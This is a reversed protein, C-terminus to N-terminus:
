IFEEQETFDQPYFYEVNSCIKNINSSRFGDKPDLASSLTLLNM